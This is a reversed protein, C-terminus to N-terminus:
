SGEEDSSSYGILRAQSLSLFVSYKARLSTIDSYPDYQINPRVILHKATVEFKKQWMTQTQFCLPYCKPQYKCHLLNQISWTINSSLMAKNWCILTTLPLSSNKSLTFELDLDLDLDIQFDIELQLDLDLNSVPFHNLILYFNFLHKWYFKSSLPNIFTSCLWTFVSSAVFLYLWYQDLPFHVWDFKGKIVLCQHYNYETSYLM